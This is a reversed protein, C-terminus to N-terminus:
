VQRNGRRVTREQYRGGRMGRRFEEKATEEMERSKGEGREREGGIERLIRENTVKETEPPVFKSLKTRKPQIKRLLDATMGREKFILFTRQILRQTVHSITALNYALQVTRTPNYKFERTEQAKERWKLLYTRQLTSQCRLFHPRILAITGVLGTLFLHKNHLIATQLKRIDELYRLEALALLREVQFVEAKRREKKKPKQLVLASDLAKPRKYAPNHFFNIAVLDGNLDTTQDAPGTSRQTTNLM